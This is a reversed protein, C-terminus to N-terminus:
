GLLHARSMASGASGGEHFCWDGVFDDDAVLQELYFVDRGQDASVASFLPNVVLDLSVNFLHNSLGVAILGIDVSRALSSRRSSLPM